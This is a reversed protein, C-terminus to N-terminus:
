FTTVGCILSIALNGTVYGSVAGAAQGLIRRVLPRHRQAFLGVTADVYRDGGLILFFTLTLVTALAAVFSAASIAVQGTASFLNGVVEGLQKRLDALQADFRQVLGGLGNDKALGKIYQTPGEPAQAATNVFKIFGNIQDVLLPLFIGVVFLLAVVLGLYILAIALPRKILHHRRQLWNVAPNLVAALFLSIVFWGVFTRVQWLLFLAGLVVATTLLAVAVTRVVQSPPAGAWGVDRTPPDASPEAPVEPSRTRSRERQETQSDKQSVKEEDM